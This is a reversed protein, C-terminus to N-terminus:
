VNTVFPFQARECLRDNSGPPPGESPLKYIRVKTGNAMIVIRSKAGLVAQYRATSEDAQCDDRRPCSPIVWDLGAFTGPQAGVQQQVLAENGGPIPKSTRLDVQRLPTGAYFYTRGKIAVSLIRTDTASLISFRDHRVIRLKQITQLDGDLVEIGEWRPLVLREPRLVLGSDTSTWSRRALIRGELSIAVIEIESVADYCKSTPGSLVIM